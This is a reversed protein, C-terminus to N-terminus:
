AAHTDSPIVHIGKAWRSLPNVHRHSLRNADNSFQLAVALVLQSPQSADRLCGEGRNLIIADPKAHFSGLDERAGQFAM